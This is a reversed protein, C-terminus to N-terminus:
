SKGWYQMNIDNCNGILEFLIKAASKWLNVCIIQRTIVGFFRLHLTDAPPGKGLGVSTIEFVTLSRKHIEAFSRGYLFTRGMQAFSEGM